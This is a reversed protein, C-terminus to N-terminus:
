LKKFIIYRLYGNAIVTEQKYNEKVFECFALAYDQCIYQYYYDRMNLNNFVIYDPKNSKFYKIIKDEGLTEIYLPLMSNYFDDSKRNTLFNIIM